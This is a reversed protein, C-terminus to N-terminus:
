EDLMPKSDERTTAPFQNEGITYVPVDRVEIEHHVVITTLMLIVGLTALIIGPSSSKITFDAAQTKAGIESSPEQLKGLIFAAGVLALIMGTVFGLYRVWVRSMLLVNAQHHRRELANAELMMLAMLRSASISDEFSLETDTELHAFSDNIDLAPAREIRRHLYFLQVFSIIFFFFTLGVIMGKMLPLLGQQWRDPSVSERQHGNSHEVRASAAQSAEKLM